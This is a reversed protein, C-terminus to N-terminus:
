RLLDWRIQHGLRTAKTQLNSIVAPNTKYSLSVREAIIYGKEQLANLKLPNNTILRVEKAVGLEDLAKLALDYRRTDPQVGLIKFAEVSDCGHEQMVKISEIKNALGAGRGEQYLYVVVGAGSSKLLKMTADLQLKCDCDLAHLAESFLCSSHIRVLPKDKDLIGTALTIAEQTGLHHYSLRFAGFKTKLIANQSERM